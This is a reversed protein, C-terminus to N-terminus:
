CLFMEKKLEHRYNKQILSYQITKLKCYSWEDTEDKRCVQTNIFPQSDYSCQM